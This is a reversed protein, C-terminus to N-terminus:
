KAYRERNREIAQRDRIRKITEFVVLFDKTDKEVASVLLEVSEPDNPQSDRVQRVIQEMDLWYVM